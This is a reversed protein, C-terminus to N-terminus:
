WLCEELFEFAGKGWFQHTGKFEEMRISKEYGLLRYIKRAKGYALRAAEIPFIGDLTGSEIFLRRPAILGALDYMEAYELIRPIYNDLCHPLSLISAKFTNFYGSVVAAKIRKEVCATYFSTTGGGSIGMTALHEADVERRTELYDVARVEKKRVRRISNTGLWKLFMRLRGHYREVTRPRYGLDELHALFRWYFARPHGAKIIMKNLFGSMVIPIWGQGFRELNSVVLHPVIDGVEQFGNNGHCFFRSDSQGKM